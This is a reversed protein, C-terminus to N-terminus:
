RAIQGFWRPLVGFRRAMQGISRIPRKEIFVESKEATEIRHHPARAGPHRGGRVGRPAAAGRDGRRSAPASMAVPVVMRFGAVDDAWQRCAASDARLARVRAAYAVLAPRCARDPEGHAAPSRRRRAGPERQPGEATGLRPRRLLWPPGGDRFLLRVAVIWVVRVSSRACFLGLAARFSRFSPGETASPVTRAKRLGGAFRARLRVRVRVRM